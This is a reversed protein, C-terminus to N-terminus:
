KPSRPATPRSNCWNGLISSQPLAEKSFLREAYLFWIFQILPDTISTGFFTHIYVFWPFQRNLSQDNNTLERGM